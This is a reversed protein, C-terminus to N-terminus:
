ETDSDEESPGQPRGMPGNKRYPPPPNKHDFNGFHKHCIHCLCKSCYTTVCARCGPYRCRLRKRRNDNSGKSKPAKHLLLHEGDDVTVGMRAHSRTTTYNNAQRVVYEHNFFEKCLETMFEAHTLYGETGKENNARYITYANAICISFLFEHFRVTWKNTRFLDFRFSNDRIQDHQDVGGMYNNYEKIARPVVYTEKTGNVRREIEVPNVSGYKTDLITVAAKDMWNALMIKPNAKPHVAIKLQGRPRTASPKNSKGPPYFNEDVISTKKVDDFLRVQPCRDKRMTAILNNQRSLLELALPVSGYYNDVLITRGDGYFIPENGDNFLLKLVQWGTYGGPKDKCNESNDVKDDLNMNVVIKTKYDVVMFLRFGQNPKNMIIIRIPNRSGHYNGMSEDISLFESPNSTIEVFRGKVLEFIRKVKWGKSDPYQFEDDSRYTRMNARIKHFQRRSMYKEFCFKNNILPHNDDWYEELSNLKVVSTYVMMAHYSYIMEKTLILRDKDQNASVLLSLVPGFLSLLIGLPRRGAYQKETIARNPGTNFKPGNLATPENVRFFGNLTQGSNNNEDIDNDDDALIHDLPDIEGKEEDDPESDSDFDKEKRGKKKRTLTVAGPAAKRKQNKNSNTDEEAPVAAAEVDETCFKKSYEYENLTLIHMNTGVEHYCGWDKMWDQGVTIKYPKKSETFAPIKIEWKTIINSKKFVKTIKGIVVVQDYQFGDLVSAIGSKEFYEESCYDNWSVLPIYIDM